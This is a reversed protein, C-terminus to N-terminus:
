ARADMVGPLEEEAPKCRDRGWAWAAGSVSLSSELYDATNIYSVQDLM